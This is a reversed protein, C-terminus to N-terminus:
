WSNVSFTVQGVHNCNCCDVMITNIAVNIMVAKTQTISKADCFKNFAM